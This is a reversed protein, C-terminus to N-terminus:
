FLLYAVGGSISLDNKGPFAKDGLATNGYAFDEQHFVIGIKLGEGMTCDHQGPVRRWAIGANHVLGPPDDGIHAGSGAMHRCQGAFEPHRGYDVGFHCGAEQVGTVFYGQICGLIGDIPAMDGGQIMELQDIFLRALELNVEPKGTQPNPIRGLFMAAQQAQMMVFEIFRQTM